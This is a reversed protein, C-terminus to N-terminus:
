KFQGELINTEPKVSGGSQLTVLVKKYLTYDTESRFELYYSNDGNQELKGTSVIDEPDGDEKVLWGTYHMGSEPSKLQATITHIFKDTSYIRNAIGLGEGESVDILTAKEPELVTASISESDSNELIGEQSTLPKDETQNNQSYFYFVSGLLLALVLVLLACSSSKM